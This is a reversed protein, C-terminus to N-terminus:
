QCRTLSDDISFTFCVRRTSSGFPTIIFAVGHVYTKGDDNGVAILRKDTDKEDRELSEGAMKENNRRKYISDYSVIRMSEGNMRILQGHNRKENRQKTM